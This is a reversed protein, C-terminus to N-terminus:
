LGVVHSGGVLSSGVIFLNGPVAADFPACPWLSYTTTWDGPTIEHNIGDVFYDAVIPDGTRTPTWSVTVRDLLDLDVVWRRWGPDSGPKVVLSQVRLQETARLALITNVAGEIDEDNLSPINSYTVSPYRRGYASEGATDIGVVTNGSQDTMAAATIIEDADFAINIDFFPLGGNGITVRSTASNTRRKFWHRHNFEVSFSARGALMPGQELDAMRQYEDLLSVDGSTDLLGSTVGVFDNTAGVGFPSAYGGGALGNLDIARQFVKDGVDLGASTGAPIIGFATNTIADVTTITAVSDRNSAHFDIDFRDTQNNAVTDFLGNTSTPSDFAVSFPMGPKLKGYFLGPAYTPDYKRQSNDVQVVTRGPEWAQRLPLRRCTAISLVRVDDTIDQNVAGDFLLVQIDIGLPHTITV